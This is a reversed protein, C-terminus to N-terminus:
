GQITPSTNPVVPSPESRINSVALYGLILAVLALGGVIEIKAYTTVLTLLGRLFKQM